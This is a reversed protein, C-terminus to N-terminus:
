QSNVDLAQVLMPLHAADGVDAVGLQGDYNFGWSYVSGDGTVCMSHEDGAAVQVVAKNLLAGRVQTPVLRDSCDDGLGLKGCEGGGWTLVADEATTCVTHHSGAAVHVVQKGQLGTVLTPVPRDEIDGVGLQGNENAGWGFLSGDTTICVTHYAGVAAYVATKGQLQGTVLTPVLRDEEQTDGVGLVGMGNFGCAFVLGDATVFITHAYGAAVQLVSKNELEGRLLTPVLRRETDGVGLQGVGNYGFACVSGDDTVCVTHAGGAAVQLVTRGELEGRVLTPVVRDEIDGVGLQGQGGRGCMFVLGDATLCATHCTGATVQVVTKTKLLGTVLTPVVRNEKDGVGLQGLENEGWAFVRGGANVCLTHNNGAAFRARSWPSTEFKIPEAANATDRLLPCSVAVMRVNYRSTKGLILGSLEASLSRNWCACQMAQLERVLQCREQQAPITQQLQAQAQTLQQEAQELSQRMSRVMAAHSRSHRQQEAQALAQRMDQVLAEAEHVAVLAADHEAQPQQILQILRPHSYTSTPTSSQM